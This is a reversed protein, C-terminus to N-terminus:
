HKPLISDRNKNPFSDTYVATAVEPLRAYVRPYALRKVPVHRAIGSCFALHQTLLQKDFLKTAVTHRVLALTAELPSLPQIEVKSNQVTPTTLLYVATLPLRQPSALPWQQAASLKLQPFNPLCTTGEEGVELPLVDDAVFQWNDGHLFAALTSKGWGSEGVFAVVQGSIAVASAHLCFVGQLALALSLAPGLVAETVWAHTLAEQPWVGIGSGDRAIFFKGVAAIHLWYGAPVTMLTTTRWQEGIWGPEDYI